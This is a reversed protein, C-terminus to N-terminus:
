MMHMGTITKDKEFMHGQRANTYGDMLLNCLVLGLGFLQLAPSVEGQV